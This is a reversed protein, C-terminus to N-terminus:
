TYHLVATCNCPTDVFFRVWHASFGQEFTYYAYGGPALPSDNVTVTVTKVTNWPEM